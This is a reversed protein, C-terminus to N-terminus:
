RAASRRWRPCRPWSPRPTPTDRGRPVVGRASGVEVTQGAYLVTIRDAIEAVVGLDHTVFLIAM